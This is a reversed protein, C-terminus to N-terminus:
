SHGRHQQWTNCTNNSIMCNNSVNWRAITLLVTNFQSQISVLQISVTSFQLDFRLSCPCWGMFVGGLGMLMLQFFIEKLDGLPVFFYKTLPFLPRTESPAAKSLCRGGLIERGSAASPSYLPLPPYLCCVGKKSLRDELGWGHEGTWVTYWWVSSVTAFVYIILVIGTKNM